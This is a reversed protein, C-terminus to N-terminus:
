PRVSGVPEGEGNWRRFAESAMIVSDYPWHDYVDGDSQAVTIRWGPPWKWLGVVRGDPLVNRFLLRKDPDLAVELM